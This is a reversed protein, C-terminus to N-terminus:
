RKLLNGERDIELRRIRSTSIPCSNEAMVMRVVVVGLSPLGCVMRRKNIELAGGETEESVVIGDILGSSAAPGFADSLPVIDARDLWGRRLLFGKLEELRVAFPAVMHPKGLREVFDDTCLGIVVREGVDFAKELLARHGRHFEDFTGGVAVTKFQKILRKM